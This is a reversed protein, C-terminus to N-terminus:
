LNCVIHLAGAGRSPYKRKRKGGHRGRGNEFDREWRELKEGEM